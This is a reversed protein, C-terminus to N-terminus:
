SVGSGRPCPFFPIGLTQTAYGQYFQTFKSSVPDPLVCSISGSPTLIGDAPQFTGLRNRKRSGPYALTFTVGGGVGVCPTVFRCGGLDGLSSVPAEVHKKPAKRRFDGGGGQRDVVRRGRM